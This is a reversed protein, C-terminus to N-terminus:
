GKDAGSGAVAMDLCGGPPTRCGVGLFWPVALQICGPPLPVVDYSLVHKEAARPCLTHPPPRPCTDACGCLSHPM